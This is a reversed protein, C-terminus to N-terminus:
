LLKSIELPNEGMFTGFHIMSLDMFINRWFLLM